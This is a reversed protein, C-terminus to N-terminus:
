DVYWVGVTGEKRIEKIAEEIRDIRIQSLPGNNDRIRLMSYGTSNILEDKRADRSQQEKLREEGYVPIFHTPGDVEIAIREKPLAIDIEFEKGKTYNTTRDEIVYGRKKLEEAIFRELRSGIGQTEKARNSLGEMMMRRDTDSMQEWKRKWAGGIKRKLEEKDEEPLKDWFEGLGKSIKKKTETSHRKGQMQHTHDRLYNKQAQTKDRSVIGHRKMFRSLSALPVNLKEAVQRMSLGEDQYLRRADTENINVM